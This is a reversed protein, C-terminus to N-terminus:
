IVAGTKTPVIGRFLSEALRVYSSYIIKSEGLRSFVKEAQRSLSSLLDRNNSLFVIAEGLERCDGSGVTLGISHESIFDRAEGPLTSIVPLRYSLYEFLKNPMAELVMGGKMTLLAIDARSLERNLAEGELWGTFRVNILDSAARIWREKFEGDGILVFEIEKIGREHLHRACRIILEGDYSHGFSAVFVCTFRETTVKASSSLRSSRECGLYFVQDNESRARGVKNLGWRLIGEGMATVGLAGTLSEKLIRSYYTKLPAVLGRTWFPLYSDFTDPWADRLDVLYPIQSKKAYRAGEVCLEPSPYSIVMLDPREYTTCFRRFEQAVDRQHLVRKLSLNKRYQRGLLPVIQYGDEHDLKQSLVEVFSKRRHNFNSCFWIVEHGSKAFAAAMQATRMKRMEPRVPPTEGDRLLWVRM